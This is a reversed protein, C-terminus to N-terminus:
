NLYYSLKQLHISPDIHEVQVQKPVQLYIPAYNLIATIGAEVLLDVAEQAHEAPVALMAIQIKNQKVFDVMEDMSKVKLEGVEDGIKKQDIDFVGAVQFGRELFGHYRALGRGIDGAGIIITDWVQEINLIQILKRILFEIEYGTGRKGLEGFQSLDKRIQAASIDLLRGLEKSSAFVNGEKKLRQLARLYLPLRGIIIRPISGTM